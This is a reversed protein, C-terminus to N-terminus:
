STEDALLLRGRQHPPLYRDEERGLWIVRGKVLSPWASAPHPLPEWSIPRNIAGDAVLYLAAAGPRLRRLLVGGRRDVAYLGRPALLARARESIDLAALNASALTVAMRDDRLLRAVVISKPAAHVALPVPFHERRSLEARWPAGPGAPSELFAAESVFQPAARRSLYDRIEREDYLDFASSNLQRLILDFIDPSLTRVGKLVNHFHPQSIGILKAFGRETFDGNQIRQRIRELLRYQADQFTVREEEM